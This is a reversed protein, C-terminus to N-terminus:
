LQNKEKEYQMHDQGRKPFFGNAKNDNEFELWPILIQAMTDLIEIRM